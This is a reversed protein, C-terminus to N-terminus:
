AINRIAYVSLVILSLRMHCCTACSLTFTPSITPSSTPASTPSFSPSISPSASPSMSPSKTPTWSPADTPRQTQTEAPSKTPSLTTPSFSPAPSAETTFLEDRLVHDENPLVGYLAKYYQGYHHIMLGGDYRSPYKTKYNNEMDIVMQFFIDKEQEVLGQWFTEVLANWTETAYARLDSVEIIISLRKGISSTSTFTRDGLIESTSQTDTYAMLTGSDLSALALRMDLGGNVNLWLPRLAASIEFSHETLNLRDREARMLNNMQQYDESVLTPEQDGSLGAVKGAPHQQNYLHFASVVDVGREFNALSNPDDNLYWAAIVTIGASSLAEFLHAFHLENPIRGKSYFDSWADSVAGVFVVVKTFGHLKAFHVLKETHTFNGVDTDMWSLKARVGVDWVWLGKPIEVYKEQVSSLASISIIYTLFIALYM